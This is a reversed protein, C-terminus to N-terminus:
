ARSTTASARSSSCSNSPRACVCLLEGPFSPQDMQRRLAAELGAHGGYICVRNGPMYAPAFFPLGMIHDWHLHSLFVHYTQPGATGRRALAANGFARVGSGLDCLM